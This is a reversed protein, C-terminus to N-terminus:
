ATTLYDVQVVSAPFTGCSTLLVAFRLDSCAALTANTITGLDVRAGATTTGTSTTQLQAMTSCNNGAWIVLSGSTAALNSVDATPIVTMRQIQMPVLARLLIYATSGLASSGLSSCTTLAPVFVTNTRTIANASLVESTLSRATMQTASLTAATVHNATLKGDSSLAQDWWQTSGM